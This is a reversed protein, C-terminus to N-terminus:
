QAWLVEDIPLWGQWDSDNSKLFAWLAGRNDAFLCTRPTQLVSFGLKGRERIRNKTRQSANGSASLAVADGEEPTGDVQVIAVSVFESVFEANDEHAIFAAADAETMFKLPSGNINLPGGHPEGKHNTTAETLHIHFM